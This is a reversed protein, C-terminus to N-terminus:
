KPPSQSILVERCISFDGSHQRLWVTGKKESYHPVSTFNERATRYTGPEFGPVALSKTPGINEETDPHCVVGTALCTPTTSSCKGKVLSALPQIHIQNRSEMGAKTSKRRVSRNGGVGLFRFRKM